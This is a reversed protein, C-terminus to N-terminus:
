PCPQGSALVILEAKLSPGMWASCLPKQLKALRIRYSQRWYLLYGVTSVASVWMWNAQLDIGRLSVLLLSSKTGCLPAGLTDVEPLQPPQGVPGYLVGFVCLWEVLEPFCRFHWSLSISRLRFLHLVFSQM